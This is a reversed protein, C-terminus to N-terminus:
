DLEPVPRRKGVADARERTAAVEVGHDHPRKRAISGPLRANM